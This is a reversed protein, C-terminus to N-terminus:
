FRPIFRPVRECYREYEEVFRARLEKEELRVIAPFGLLCLLFVVYVALYNTFLVHALLGLTADVYRPHRIRSYIGETLLVPKYKGPAVEPLGMLVRWGLQKKRRLAISFALVFIPIALAILVPNTGFQISLLKGRMRFLGAAAIGMASLHVVYTLRPGLKRWFHIFPHISFWFSLAVPVAIVLFLALYYRISDM